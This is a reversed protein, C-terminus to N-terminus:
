SARAKMAKLATIAKQAMPKTVFRLSSVKFTRALWKNLTEEGSHGTHETWITRILELQAFTAMGPRNGYDPGRAQLPTFGCFELYGMMTEFGGQDLETSSTVGALQVLADRYEAETLKLKSKAVHLVAKQKNSIPM